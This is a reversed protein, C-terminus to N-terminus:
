PITAPIKLHKGTVTVIPISPQIVIEEGKNYDNRNRGGCKSTETYGQDSSEDLFPTDKTHTPQFADSNEDNSIGMSQDLRYNPTRSRTSQSQGMATTISIESM